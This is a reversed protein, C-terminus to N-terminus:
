TLGTAWVGCSGVYIAESPGGALSSPSCEIQPLGPAVRYWVSGDPSAMVQPRGEAHGVALFGTPGSDALKALIVDDFTAVRAFPSGGTSTWIATRFGEPASVGEAAVVVAETGGLAGISQVDDGLTGFHTWTLADTSKWATMSTDGGGVLAVIEDGVPLAAALYADEDGFTSPPVETWHKGDASRLAGLYPDRGAAYVDGLLILGGPTVTLREAHGCVPGEGSCDGIEVSGKVSWATGDPSEWVIARVLNGGTEIRTGVAVYEGSFAVEFITAGAADEVSSPRWTGDATRHWAAATCNPDDGPGVCSAGVIVPGAKGYAAGRADLPDGGFEVPEWVSGFVHERATPEPDIASAVPASGL